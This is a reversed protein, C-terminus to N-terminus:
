APFTVCSWHPPMPTYIPQDGNYNMREHIAADDARSAATEETQCLFPKDPARTGKDFAVL